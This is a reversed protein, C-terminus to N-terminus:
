ARALKKKSIYVTDFFCCLINKEIKFVLKILNEENLRQQAISVIFVVSNFLFLIFFRIKTEM